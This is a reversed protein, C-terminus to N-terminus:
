EDVKAPSKLSSHRHLAEMRDREAQEEAARLSNARREMLDKHFKMADRPKVGDIFNWVGNKRFPRSGDLRRDDGAWGVGARTQGMPHNPAYVSLTVMGPGDIRTCIAAIPDALSQDDRFYQLPCGIPPTPLVQPEKDSM